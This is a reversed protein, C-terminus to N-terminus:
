VDDEMEAPYVTRKTKERTLTAQTRKTPAKNNYRHARDRQITNTRYNYSKRFIIITAYCPM